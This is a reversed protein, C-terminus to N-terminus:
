VEGLRVLRFAEIQKQIQPDNLRSLVLAQEPDDKAHKLFNQAERMVRFYDTASINNAQQAFRDWSKEPVNKEVLDSLIISSAGILTHVPVPDAGDFLLRIAMRLQRTAAELKTLKIMESM